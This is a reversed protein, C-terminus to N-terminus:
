NLLYAYEVLFILHVIFLYASHELKRTDIWVCAIIIQNNAQKIGDLRLHYKNHGVLHEAVTDVAAIDVTDEVVIVATVAAAAIDVM